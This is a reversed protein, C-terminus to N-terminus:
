ITMNIIGYTFISARLPMKVCGDIYCDTRSCPVAIGDLSAGCTKSRINYWIKEFRGKPSFVTFTEKIDTITINSLM